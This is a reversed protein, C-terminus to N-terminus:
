FVRKGGLTTALATRYVGIIGADSFSRYLNTDYQQPLFSDTLKTSCLTTYM